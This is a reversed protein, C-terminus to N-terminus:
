SKSTQPSASPSVVIKSTEIPDSVRFWRVIVFLLVCMMLFLTLASAIDLEFERARNYMQRPFESYYSSSTTTTTSISENSDKLKPMPIRVLKAPEEFYTKYFEQETFIPKKLRKNVSNHFDFFWKVLEFRSNLAVPFEEAYDFSHRVCDGCGLKLFVKEIFDSADKQQALNPQVPYKLSWIHLFPWTVRGFVRPMGALSFENILKQLDVPQIINLDFGFHPVSTAM